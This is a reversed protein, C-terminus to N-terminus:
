HNWLRQSIIADRYFKNSLIPLYKYTIVIQAGTTNCIPSPLMTTREYRSYDACTGLYGLRVVPCGVGTELSWTHLRRCWQVPWVVYGPDHFRMLILIHMLRCCLGVVGVVVVLRVEIRISYDISCIQDATMQVEEKGVIEVWGSRDPFRHTPIRVEVLAALLTM